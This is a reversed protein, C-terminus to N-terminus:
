KYLKFGANFCLFGVEVAILNNNRCNSNEPFYVLFKPMLHWYDLWLSGKFKIKLQTKM